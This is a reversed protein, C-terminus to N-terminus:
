VTSIHSSTHFADSNLARPTTRTRTKEVHFSLGSCYGLAGPMALHILIVKDLVESYM